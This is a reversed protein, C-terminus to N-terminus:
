RWISIRDREPLFIKPVAALPAPMLRCVRAETGHSALVRNPEPKAPNPCRYRSEGGGQLTGTNCYGAYAGSTITLTLVDTKAPGAQENDRLLVIFDGPGGPM